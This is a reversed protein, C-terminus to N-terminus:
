KPQEGSNVQIKLLPNVQALVPAIQELKKMLKNYDKMIDDGATKSTSGPEHRYRKAIDQYFDGYMRIYEGVLNGLSRLIPLTKMDFPAKGYHIGNPADLKVSLNVTAIEHAIHQIKKLIVGYTEEIEDQVGGGSLMKLLETLTAQYTKSSRAISKLAHMYTPDDVLQKEDFGVPEIKALERNRYIVPNKAQWIANQEPDILSRKPKIAEKVMEEILRELDNVPMKAM